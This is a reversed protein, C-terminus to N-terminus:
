GAGVRGRGAVVRAPSAPRPAPSALRPDRVGALFARGALELMQEDDLCNSEHAAALEKWQRPDPPEQLLPHMGVITRHMIFGWVIYHMGEIALIQREPPIGARDVKVAARGFGAIMAAPSIHELVLHAVNPHRTVRRYMELSIEIIWEEWDETQPELTLRGIITQAVADLIAAKDEFHHYLSPGRVGLESAIRELSLAHVGEDDLLRIAVQAVKRRSIRAPRGM